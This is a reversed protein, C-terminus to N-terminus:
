LVGGTEFNVEVGIVAFDESTSSSFTMRLAGVHGVGTVGAWQSYVASDAAWSDVDWTAIDWAAGDPVTTITPVSTPGSLNYDVRMDMLPAPTQDCRMHPRALTFRKKASTGM